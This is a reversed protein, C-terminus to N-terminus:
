EAKAEPLLVAAAALVAGVAQTTVEVTGPPVGFLMALMSLGALTSPERLRNIIFKTKKSAM